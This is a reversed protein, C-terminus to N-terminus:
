RRAAQTLTVTSGIPEGGDWNRLSPRLSAEDTGGDFAKRRFSHGGFTAAPGHGREQVKEAHRIDITKDVKTFAKAATTAEVIKGIETKFFPM